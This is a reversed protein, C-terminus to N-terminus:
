QSTKIARIVSDYYALGHPVYQKGKTPNQLEKEFANIPILKIASVEEDQLKLHALPVEIKAIFVHNFENDIYDENHTVESKHIFLHCLDKENLGLGIEEEVERLAGEIISEGASIHGAVSVDWLDPYNIKNSHRLQILIKGSDTYLWVHASAHFWGQQHARQKTASFGASEGLPSLIDVREEKM